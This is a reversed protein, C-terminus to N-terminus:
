NRSVHFLKSSIGTESQVSMLYMGSPLEGLSLEILESAIRKEQRMLQGQTSFIRIQLESFAPWQDKIYLTGQSPNPFLSLTSAQKQIVPVSVVADLNISIPVRNVPLFGGSGDEIVFTFEDAETEDGSHQYVIDFTEIARQTFQSGVELPIGYAYLVGKLPKKVITYVLDFSSNDEDSAILVDPTLVNELGPPVFFTDNNVLVPNIAQNKACFELGWEEIAGSAGFGSRAVTVRLTWTGKTNEGIFASLPNIPQFVIGDDPPCVIANPADDDFGMRLNVTAGCNQDFLIVETEAPSILSIRLSNVPQYNAKIFPINLDSIIGDESVEISSEVTPLGTGSINVRSENKFALCNISATHFTRAEVFEGPGCTNSPRIRWFFLENAPFLTSHQYFTDQIDLASELISEEFTPSSAIEIEYAEANDLTTWSFVTSLLIGSQGDEPTNTALKSFDNSLTSFFIERELTDINPNVGIVKLDIDFADANALDISLISEEGPIIPNKSFIYSSGEPLNGLIELNVAEQFGNLADTQIVFELPEPQCHLPIGAPAVHVILGTDQAPQIEFNFNSLDFFVNDVAEVMIRAFSATTDPLTIMVSGNNRANQALVIPYTIGADLSLRINVFQCNVPAQDTNAVDWTVEFYDGANFQLRSENPATVLFPGAQDTTKFKIQEWTTGGAIPNNDRVTCRFTLDRSYTPLVEDTRSRNNLLNNLQPIFRVSDSSPPLSRFLPVNGEPERIDSVYFDMDYQEWCYTLDDGDIDKGQAALKIPTNIPIFLGAEMLLDVTPLTNDSSIITACTSGNGVRSYFQMSEISNVHFYGDNDSAVNQPGCSGAYSMITSGSGPEFAASSSRQNSNAENCNNWTHDAGLQHGIEHAFTGAAFSDTSGSQCSAGGAKLNGCVIGLDLALGVTSGQCGRTLAHGIDYNSSGIRRNIVGINEGALSGADNGTLGDTAADYFFLTDINEVLTFEIAVDRIFIANVRDLLVNIASLTTEPTGGWFSSFEGTATIAMRYRVLDIPQSSSRLKSNRYAALDAQLSAPLEEQALYNPESFSQETQHNRTYYVLCYDTISRQFPDIYIEGAETSLVAHFGLPSFSFRISESPNDLAKGAYAHIQPFKQQLGEPLNASRQVQFYKLKGTPLPIPIRLPTNKENQQELIRQLQVQDVQYLLYESPQIDPNKNRLTSISGPNTAKWLPAQQADLSSWFTTVLLFLFLCKKM